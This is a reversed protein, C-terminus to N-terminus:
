PLLTWLKWGALGTVVLVVGFGLINAVWGNKHRGMLSSQNVVVLLFLAILPLLFGNAVQAILITQTPSTEFTVALGVGTVLVAIWLLRFRPSKFDAPWSLVGCIAYSAALPATIASTLGASFLGIAFLVTAAEGGVTPALQQAMKAATLQTGSGAFAAAATTVIAGTILGGIGIALMTDLRSGRLAEDVPVDPPWHERVSSAHLFLNYPVITTGILGLITILSDKPFSPVFAGRCLEGVDPRVLIATTIFVVSMTLVLAILAKELLPYKGALLLGFAASGVVLAWTWVPWGTLVNLGVAAGTINGTQYAANGFGIALIILGTSFARAVPHSITTRVAEGLGLRTTLGLRASMSQLVVTAFASFLVAWLLTFGFDAGAKSATTVTGPGIFAATVLLGPGFTRVKKRLETM